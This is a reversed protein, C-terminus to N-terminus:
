RQQTKPKKGGRVFVEREVPKLRPEGDRGMGVYM